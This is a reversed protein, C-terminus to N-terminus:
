KNMSFESKIEEKKEGQIYVAKKLEYFENKFNEMMAQQASIKNNQESLAKELEAIREEANKLESTRKELAQLCIMMIGDMDATALTTDNGIVGIDDKGFYHFIEQAMPGYHRFEKPDQVKYNWSGLKLKSLSSLFYEGDAKIFNEKKTSDSITNWSNGGANLAVGVTLTANTHLRYGGAYRFSLQNNASSLISDTTSADGAVFSGTHGNTSARHGLAVSYDGSARTRYGIAVSGQYEAKSSYGIAISTFGSAICSAGISVSATGSSVNSAGYSFAHTGSSVCNEGGAFSYITLARTNYGLAASYFGLNADDWQTNTVAGARFAAKYPYWMMREGAGTKPIVGFGLLGGVYFGGDANLNFITLNNNDKVNFSSSVDNGASSLKLSTVQAFVNATTLLAIIIITSIVKM